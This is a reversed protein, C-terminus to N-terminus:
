QAMALVASYSVKIKAGFISAKVLFVSMNRM